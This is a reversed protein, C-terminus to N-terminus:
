LDLEPEEICPDDFQWLGGTTAHERFAAECQPCDHFQFGKQPRM